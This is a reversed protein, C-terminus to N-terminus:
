RWGGGRGVGQRGAEGGVVGAAAELVVAGVGHGVGGRMGKAVSEGLEPCGDGPEEFGGDGELEEEVFIELGGDNCDEEDEVGGEGVHLFAAGLGGEGGELGAEGEVGGDAAVGGPLGEGGCLEDTAIEDLEGESSDDRGVHM